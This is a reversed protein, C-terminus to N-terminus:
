ANAGPLVVGSIEWDKVELALGSVGHHIIPWITPESQTVRPVEMIAKDRPMQVLTAGYAESYVARGAHVHDIAEGYMM